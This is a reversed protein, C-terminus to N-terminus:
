HLLLIGLLREGSKLAPSIWTAKLPLLAQWRGDGKTRQSSQGSSRQTVAEGIKIGLKHSETKPGSWKSCSPPVEPGRPLGGCAPSPTGEGSGRVPLRLCAHTNHKPSLSLSLLLKIRFFAAPLGPLRVRTPKRARARM